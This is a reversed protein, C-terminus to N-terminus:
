RGSGAKLTESLAERVRAFPEALDAHEPIQERKGAVFERDGGHSPHFHLTRGGVTMQSGGAPGDAHPNPEDTEDGEVRAVARDTHPRLALMAPSDCLVMHPKVGAKKVLTGGIVEGLLYPVLTPGYLIQQTRDPRVPTTCQFELPRGLRDTMLLGGVHGGGPLDVATLFGLTLAKAPSDDAAKAM